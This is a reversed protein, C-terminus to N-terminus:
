EYSVRIAAQNVQALDSHPYIRNSSLQIVIGFTPNAIDASTLSTGWLNDPGGYIHYNGIPNYPTTLEASNIDSQVPNILSALNEGILEGELTLQIIADQIRALRNVYLQFEIGTVTQGNDPINLGTCWLQNTNHIFKEMWMGSITYLPETTSTYMESSAINELKTWPVSPRLTVINEVEVQEVVSPSYFTTTIM